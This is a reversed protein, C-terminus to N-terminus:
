SEEKLADIPSLNAAYIAPKLGAFVGAVMLILMASVTVMLNIGPKDMLFTDENIAMGIIKLCLWGLTIGVYGAVSTIAISEWLFMSKIMTANAGLSKRIGIERTREKASIYMINGVGIIGSILTSLGMFWLFGKLTDFFSNFAKVQEEMSNFYFASDDDPAILKKRSLFIRIRKNVENVEVGNQVTFTMTKFEKATANTKLYTSYPLYIVREESKSLLTNKIVGVVEYVETGIRIDKGVVRNHRFLVDAVNQGIIVCRRCEKMDLNNLLRGKETELIKINFYDPSVARIEFYGQREDSFVTEWCAIEPSVMAISPVNQKLRRLDDQTFSIPTGVNTGKYSKSTRIAFVYTASKSYGDFLKLVGREFGMGIGVLMILIFIGWSIGVGALVVRTPKRQVVEWIEHLFDMM